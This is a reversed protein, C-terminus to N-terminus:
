SEVLMLLQSNRVLNKKYLLVAGLGRDSADTQLIFTEKINPLKLIPCKTLSAKLTQFALNHDGEWKLKTLLGKKTLDTLPSAIQAFNPM